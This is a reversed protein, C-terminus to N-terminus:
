PASERETRLNRFFGRITRSRQREAIVLAAGVTGLVASGVLIATWVPVDPSRQTQGATASEGQEVNMSSDM